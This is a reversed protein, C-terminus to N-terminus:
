LKGKNSNRICSISYWFLRLTFFYVIEVFSLLSCGLFFATTGGFSAILDDYTFIVDRRLRVKSFKEIAWRFRIDYLVPFMWQRVIEKDVTYTNDICQPLCNCPLKKGSGTRLTILMEAFNSLCALGKVDCM